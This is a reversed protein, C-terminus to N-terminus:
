DPNYYKKYINIYTGNAQINLIAKNIKKILNSKNPLAIIGYGEGLSFEDSVAKIDYLGNNIYSYAVASNLLILDVNHRVLNSILQNLTNFPVITNNNKYPTNLLLEYFTTKLVGIKFNKILDGEHTTSNQLAIFQVKSLMYPLSIAYSKLKEADYPNALLVLDVAGENLMTLQNSLTLQKFVCEADIQRCINNMIDISFGYFYTGNPTHAIAAFPPANTIVGVLLPKSFACVGNLFFIIFALFKM